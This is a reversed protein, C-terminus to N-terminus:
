GWFDEITGRKLEVVPRQGRPTNEIAPAEDRDHKAAQALAKLYMGLDTEDADRMAIGARLM